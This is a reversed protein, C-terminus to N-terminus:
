RCILFRSIVYKLRVNQLQMQYDAIFEAAFNNALVSLRRTAHLRSRDRSIIFGSFFDDFRRKFTSSIIRIYWNELFNYDSFRRAGRRCRARVGGPLKWTRELLKWRDSRYFRKSIRLAPALSNKTKKRKREPM